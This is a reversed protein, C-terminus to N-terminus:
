GPSRDTDLLGLAEAQAIADAGSNAGLKRYLERTRTKVTTMSVYLEAGIGRRSLGAALARLVALQAARSSVKALVLLAHAHGVTPQPSRSCTVRIPHGVNVNGRMCKGGSARSLDTTVIAGACTRM